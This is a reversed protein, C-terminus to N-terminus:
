LTNKNKDITNDVFDTEENPIGIHFKNCHNYGEFYCVKGFDVARSKTTLLSLDLWDTVNYGCEYDSDLWDGTTPCLHCYHIYRDDVICMVVNFAGSEPKRESVPVFLHKIEEINM